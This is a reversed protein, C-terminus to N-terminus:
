QDGMPLNGAEKTKKEIETWRKAASQLGEVMASAIVNLDEMQGPHREAQTTINALSGIAFEASRKANERRVASGLEILDSSAQQSAMAKIQAVRNRFEVLWVNSDAVLQALTVKHSHLGARLSSEDIGLKATAKEMSQFVVMQQDHAAKAEEYQRQLDSVKAEQKVRESSGIELTDRHEIAQAYQEALTQVEGKKKEMNSAAQQKGAFAEEKKNQAEESQESLAQIREQLVMVTKDVCKSITDFSQEFDAEQLRESRMDEATKIAAEIGVRAQKEAEEMKALNTTAETVASDRRGFFNWKKHAEGLKTQAETIRALSLSHAQEASSIVRQENQNFDQVHEFEEGIEKFNKSLSAVLSGLSKRDDYLSGRVSEISAELIRTRAILKEEPSMSDSIEVVADALGDAQQRLRSDATKKAAETKVKAGGSSGGFNGNLIDNINVVGSSSEPETAAPSAKRRPEGM